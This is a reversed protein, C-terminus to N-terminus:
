LVFIRFFYYSSSHLDMWPNTRKTPREECAWAAAILLLLSKMTLEQRKKTNLKLENSSSSFRWVSQSRTLANSWYLQSIISIERGTLNLYFLIKNQKAQLPIPLRVWASHHLFTYCTWLWYPIWLSKSYIFYVKVSFLLSESSGNWIHAVTLSM